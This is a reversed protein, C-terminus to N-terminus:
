TRAQLCVFPSYSRQAGKYIGNTIPQGDGFGSTLERKLWGPHPSAGTAIGQRMGIVYQSLDALVLDSQQGVLPMKHHFVIPRGM